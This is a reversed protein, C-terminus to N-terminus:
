ETLLIDSRLFPREYGKIKYLTQGNEEIIKEVTHLTHSWVGVHQKDLKDKKRYLRVKDDVSINPYQRNRKANMLLKMKIEARYKAIRAQKPTFGTARSIHKNNYYNLVQRIHKTWDPDSLGEVRKYIWDKITRIMREAVPAHSRTVIHKIGEGRFYQQVKNSVFAGEEDSFIFEPTAEMLKILEKLGNLVDDIQKTKIPVVECYKTFIDVALLGYPQKIGTQKSLDEFFFIDIQYEFYPEDAVFSNYGRLQRKTGINKAFWNRVDELTTSNDYKKADKLTKAMSGFGDEEDYYSKAICDELSVM